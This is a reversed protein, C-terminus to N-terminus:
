PLAVGEADVARVEVNYGQKHILTRESHQRASRLMDDLNYEYSGIHGLRISPVLHVPIGLQQARECIAYDESLHVHEVGGAIELDTAFEEYYNRFEMDTGERYLPVHPEMVKFARRSVSMFGGALWRMPVPDSEPGFIVPVEPLVSTPNNREAARCMYIAGAIGGTEHAVAAVEQVDQPSFVIDSDITVLVDADYDKLFQGAVMSRARAVPSSGINMIMANINGASCVANMLCQVTRPEFTRWVVTGIAISPLTDTM